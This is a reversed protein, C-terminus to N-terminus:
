GGLARNLLEALRYGALAVSAEATELAKRRYEASPERGRELGAPFAVTKAKEFGERAWGEYDGPRLSAAFESRPYEAAIERALREIRAQQSEGPKEPHNRSLLSDWYWHLNDDGALKFLNGGRDGEPEQPTVRGSTHLPQHLDGGLHLVWALDVAKHSDPRAEETLAEALAGLREIANERDPKLDTRERAPGGPEAQEWFFNRYHWTGRHYLTRRRAHEGDRVVDPWTSARLFLTRGRHSGSAPMLQHLDADKPAQRLIEVARSRVGPDLHEWAIRAVVQHGLDDWARAAPALLLACAAVLAAALIRPDIHPTRNM